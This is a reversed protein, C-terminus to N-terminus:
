KDENKYPGRGGEVTFDLSFKHRLGVQLGPKFSAKLRVPTQDIYQHNAFTRM